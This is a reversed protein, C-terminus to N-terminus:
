VSLAHVGRGLPRGVSMHAHMVFETVREPGWAQHQECAEHRRRGPAFRWHGVRRADKLRQGGLQDLAELARTPQEDAVVVLFGPRRDGFGEAGVVTPGDLRVAARVGDLELPLGAASQAGRLTAASDYTVRAGPVPAPDVLDREEVRPRHILLHGLVEHRYVAVVLEREIGAEAVSVLEARIRRRGDV